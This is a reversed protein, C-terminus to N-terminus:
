TGEWTHAALDGASAVHAKILTKAVEIDKDRIAQIIPLHNLAVQVLDRNLRNRLSMVQRVRFAVVNWMSDLLQHESLTIVTSHFRQDIESVLGIQDARSAVLMEEVISQLEDAAHPVSRTIIREIAFAELTGRLSYIEEIDALSLSKVRSGHYPVSEVLGEASLSQLAERLPARSVRFQEALEVEKLPSGPKLSGSLIAERLSDAIRERLSKNDIETLQPM